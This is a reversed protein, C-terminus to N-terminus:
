QGNKLSQNRPRASSSFASFINCIMESAASSTHHCSERDKQPTNYHHICHLTFSHDSSQFIQLFFNQHPILQVPGVELTSYRKDRGIHHTNLSHKNTPTYIDTHRHTCIQIHPATGESKVNYCLYTYQQSSRHYSVKLKRTSWWTTGFQQNCVSNVFNSYSQIAPTCLSGNTNGDVEGTKRQEKEKGRKRELSSYIITYRQSPTKNTGYKITM